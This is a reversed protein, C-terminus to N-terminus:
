PRFKRWEDQSGVRRYTMRRCRFTNWTYILPEFGHWWDEDIDGCRGEFLIEGDARYLRFEMPLADAQESTGRCPIGDRDEGAWLCGGHHDITIIWRM